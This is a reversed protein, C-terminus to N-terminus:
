QEYSIAERRSFRAMLDTLGEVSLRQKRPVYVTQHKPNASDPAGRLSVWYACRKAVLGDESHRLWDAADEPLYLVVLLRPAQVHTNRLKDYRPVTLGNSFRAEQEIPQQFTAKLQIDVSFSTLISDAALRRGDERVVADVGAADQHRDAYACAFGGRVAVALLYAYSLEAEINAQTLVSRRGLYSPKNFRDEGNYSAGSRSAANTTPGSSCRPPQRAHHHNANATTTPFCNDAIESMAVKAINDSM